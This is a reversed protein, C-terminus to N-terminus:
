YAEYLIDVTVEEAATGSAITLKLRGNVVFPEYISYNNSYEVGTGTNDHVAVRPYYVVDTNAASLDMIKQSKLEGDTDIDVTCTHAPYDVIVAMIKGAIPNSYATASGDAAIAGSSIRVRQIKSPM